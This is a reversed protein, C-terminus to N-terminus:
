GNLSFAREPPRASGAYLQEKLEKLANREISDDILHLAALVFDFAASARLASNESASGDSSGYTWFKAHADVHELYFQWLTQAPMEIDKSGTVKAKDAKFAAREARETIQELMAELRGVLVLYNEDGPRESVQMRNLFCPNSILGHLGHSIKAIKKADSTQGLGHRVIQANHLWFKFYQDIAKLLVAELEDELDTLGHKIIIKRLARQALARSRTLHPRVALHELHDATLIAVLEVKKDFWLEALDCACALQDVRTRRLSTVNM